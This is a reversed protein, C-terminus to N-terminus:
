FRVNFVPEPDNIHQNFVNGLLQGVFGTRYRPTGNPTFLSGGAFRAPTSLKVEPTHFFRAPDNESLGSLLGIRVEETKSVSSFIDAKIADSTAKDITVYADRKAVDERLQAQAISSLAFLALASIYTVKKIMEFVAKAVCM